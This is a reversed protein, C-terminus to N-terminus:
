KLTGLYAVLARVDADRLHFNPMLSGPKIAQPDTLWRTLNAPTNELLGAALTERSAIHNLDPGIGTGHCSACTDEHYLRAGAVADPDQPPPPSQRQQQVWAAFAPAPEAIVRIRMWAHQAGCFEVCAGLYVGPKDAELWIDTPHGPTMDMKRALQPVWFDHIVDVSALHVLFMRDVPLHIENATVVGQGPYGVEWWWQHGTVVLDPIRREAPPDVVRMTMVTPIFIVLLLVGAGAVWAIEVRPRGANQPPEARGPRDRFRLAAVVIVGAVIIFVAAGLLLVFVLLHSTAEAQPSAPNFPSGIPM